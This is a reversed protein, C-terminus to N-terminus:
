GNQLRWERFAREAQGGAHAIYRQAVQPSEWGFVDQLITVNNIRYAWYTACRARLAHPFLQRRLGGRRGALMVRRWVTTACVGVGEHDEFWDRLIHWASRSMDKLPITRAARRTKAHFGSVPDAAPIVLKGDELWYRRLHVLERERLGGEGLTNFIVHDLGDRAEDLVRLYEEQSPVYDRSYGRKQSMKTRAPDLIVLAEEYKRETVRIGHSERLHARGALITLFEKSCDPVACQCRRAKM